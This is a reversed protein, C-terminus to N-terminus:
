RILSISGNQKIDSDDIAKANIVYVYMGSELIQNNFKGDWCFSPNQSAFVEEGWCNFIRISFLKVCNEWGQLYFIDNNGDNNPTFANPVKLDCVPNTKKNDSNNIESSHIGFSQFSFIIILLFLIKLILKILFNKM